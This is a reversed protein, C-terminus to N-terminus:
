KKIVVTDINAVVRRNQQRGENTENTAVPRSEGFGETSIKAADIGFTEVLVMKVSKARRKSLDDNYADSGESDTHGELSVDKDPYAKLFNAVEEIQPNYEPRVDDKDFDFEIHLTISIREKIPIPCGDKDVKIGKPTDPCKDIDDTVGDGDSDM